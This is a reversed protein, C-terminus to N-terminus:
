DSSDDSFYFKKSFQVYTTSDGDNTPININVDYGIETGEPGDIEFKEGSICGPAGEYLYTLPFSGSTFIVKHECFDDIYFDITNSPAEFLLTVEIFADEPLHEEYEYYYFSFVYKSGPEITYQRHNKRYCNELTISSEDFVLSSISDANSDNFEMYPGCTLSVKEEECGVM